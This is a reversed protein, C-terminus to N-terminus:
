HPEANLIIHKAWEMLGITRYRWQHKPYIVQLVGGSGDAVDDSAVIMLYDGVTPMDLDRGFIDPFRGLVAELEDRAQDYREEYLGDSM